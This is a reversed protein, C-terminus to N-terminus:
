RADRGRHGRRHAWFPWPAAWANKPPAWADNVNLSWLYSYAVLLAVTGTVDSAICLWIGIRNRRATTSVPEGTTPRGRSPRRRSTDRADDPVWRRTTTPTMTPGLDFADYPDPFGTATPIVRSSRCSPSTRSRCRADGDAVRPDQAGWPNSPALAGSRWSTIIAYLFVLMGIGITFAGITSLWNSVNFADDFQLVRRPMGQLGAVFMSGFTLQFGAFAVWFGISGIREDLMRGTMKPFWYAIAGIAAFLGAGMLMYHFHAVVFMSGHMYQDVPVDSLYM